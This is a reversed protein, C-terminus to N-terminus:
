VWMTYSYARPACGCARDRVAGHACAVSNCYEGADFNMVGRHAAAYLLAVCQLSWACARAGRRRPGAPPPYLRYEPPEGAEMM